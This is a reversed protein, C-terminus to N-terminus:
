LQKSFYILSMNENIKEIKGTPVYGANSYLRCLREEQLITDLQWRRAEPYLREAQLLAERAYGKKQFCPLILIQKLNIVDTDVVLRILGVRNEGSEIFYTHINKSQLRAKVKDLSEAAPNTKYDKYKELLSAFAIKQMALIDEADGANARCLTIDM